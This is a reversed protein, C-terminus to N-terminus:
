KKSKKSKRSRKSKSGGRKRKSKGMSKSMSKSGDRKRKPTPNKGWNEMLKLENEDDFKFGLDNIDHDLTDTDTKPNNIYNDVNAKITKDVKPQDYIIESKFGDNYGKLYGYKFFNSYQNENLYGLIDEDATRGNMGQRGHGFGFNYGKTWESIHEPAFNSM